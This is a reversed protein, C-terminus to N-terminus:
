RANERGSVPDVDIRNSLQNEAASGQKARSASESARLTKSAPQDHISNRLASACLHISPRSAVPITYTFCVCKSRSRSVKIPAHIYAREGPKMVRSTTSNSSPARRYSGPAAVTRADEPRPRRQLHDSCDTRVRNRGPEQFRLSVEHRAQPPLLLSECARRFPIRDMRDGRAPVLAGRIKPAQKWNKRSRPITALQRWSRAPAVSSLNLGCKSSVLSSSSFTNASM